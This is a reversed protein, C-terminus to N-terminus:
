HVQKETADQKQKEIKDLQAQLRAAEEASKVIVRRMIKPALTGDQNSLDIRESFGGKTKLFFIIATLNGAQVKEFLKRSATAVQTAIGNDLEERFYKRLTKEACGIYAAIHKETVGFGSLVRVQQRQELTPKFAEQTM